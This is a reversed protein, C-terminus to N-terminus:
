CRPAASSPPTSARSPRRPTSDWQRLADEASADARGVRGAAHDAGQRRRLRGRRRRHLHRDDNRRRRDGARAPRPGAVGRLAGRSRAPLRPQDPLRAPGLRGRAPDQLGPSSSACTTGARTPPWRGPTSESSNRRPRACGCSRNSSGTPGITASSTAATPSSSTTVGGKSVINLHEGFPLVIQDDYTARSQLLAVYQDFRAPDKYASQIARVRARPLREDVLDRLTLRRAEHSALGPVSSRTSRPRPSTTHSARPCTGSPGSSTPGASPSGCRSRTCGSSRGRHLRRRPRARARPAMWERAPVAPAAREERKEARRAETAAPDGPVVGYISDAFRELLFEGLIDEM